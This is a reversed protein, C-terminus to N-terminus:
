NPQGGTRHKELRELRELLEKVQADTRQQQEDRRRDGEQIARVADEIRGQRVDIRRNFDIQMALARATAEALARTEPSLGNYDVHVVASRARVLSRTSKAQHHRALDVHEDPHVVRYGVNPVAVLAHKGTRQFERAARRVVSQLAHRDAVGLRETLEDYTLVEGPHLGTLHDLVVRWRAVTDRPAFPSM